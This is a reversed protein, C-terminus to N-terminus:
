HIINSCSKTQPVSKGDQTIIVGLQVHSADMDKKFQKTFNPYYLFVEKAVIKKITDLAAQEVDGWCWKAPLALLLPRFEDSPFIV